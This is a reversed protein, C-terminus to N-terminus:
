RLADVIKKAPPIWYILYTFGMKPEKVTLKAWNAGKGFWNNKQIRNLESTDMLSESLVDAMTAGFYAEISYDKPFSVEIELEEVLTSIYFSLAEKKFDKPAHAEVDEKTMLFARDLKSEIEYSLRENTNLSGLIQLNFRYGNEKREYVNLTLERVFSRKTLTPYERIKCGPTDYFAEGPIYGVTINQQSIQLDEWKTMTTTSGDLDEIRDVLSICGARYVFRRAVRESFSEARAEIEMARAKQSVGWRISIIAAILLGVVGILAAKVEPSFTQPDFSNGSQARSVNTNTNSTEQAIALTCFSLSLALPLIPILRKLKM